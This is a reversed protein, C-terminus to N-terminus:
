DFDKEKSVVPSGLFSNTYIEHGSHESMEDYKGKEVINSKEFL